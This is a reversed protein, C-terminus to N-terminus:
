FIRTHIHARAGVGGLRHGLQKKIIFCQNADDFGIIEVAHGGQYSGSVYSYVGGAYSYFDSYVNFITVLPGYTLLASKLGAVTPSNTAVWKWGATADTESQRYPCAANSCSNDTATYPFCSDPPLGTSAIFASASEIYGGNCNGAGSCSM